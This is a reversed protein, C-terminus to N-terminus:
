SLIFDSMEVYLYHAPMIVFLAAIIKINLYDEGTKFGSGALSTMWKSSDPVMLRSLDTQWNLLSRKQM